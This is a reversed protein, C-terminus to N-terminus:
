VSTKIVQKTNQLSRDATESLVSWCASPLQQSLCQASTHATEKGHSDGVGQLKRRAKSPVLWAQSDWLVCLISEKALKEGFRFDPLIRLFLCPAFLYPTTESLLRGAFSAPLVFSVAKGEVVIVLM